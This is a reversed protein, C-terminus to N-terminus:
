DQQEEEGPQVAGNQDQTECTGGDEDNFTGHGDNDDHDSRDAMVANDDVDGVMILEGGVLLCAKKARRDARQADAITQQMRKVGICTERPTSGTVTRVVVSRDELRARVMWADGAPDPTSVHVGLGVSALSLALKIRAPNNDLHAFCTYLSPRPFLMCGHM